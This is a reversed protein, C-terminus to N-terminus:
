SLDDELLQIAVFMAKLGAHVSLAPGAECVFVNENGVIEKFTKEFKEAIINNQVHGIGVRYTKRSPLNKLLFKLFKEHKNKRGFTKGGLKVGEQHLTLIPNMVLLNAITKVFPPIRGGKVVNELTELGIYVKTNAIAQKTVQMVDEISKGAQIAEATRWAILGQGVSGNNCDIVKVPFDRLSNTATVASQYTGSAAAPIHISIASKYHSALFQYQRRFDGPAPQSTQPHIPNRQAEKWFEATTMTMKDVYHKDGFNLRVPVMHIDLEELMEEPLDCGSDVVLAISSHEKQADKQQRFMDDAKEGSVLGFQECIEMITKPEDTHIHMKAKNKTGALVISGGHNMLREKLQIRNINKGTIICETCYRFKEDINLEVRDSSDIIEIKDVDTVSGNDIFEQIGEILDVFGQGGADVVGAKALVDLKEPTKELSAQAKILAQKLLQSYDTIYRSKERVENVWDSIVTLITGERPETLAEYAYEKAVQLSKGFNQSSLQPKNQTGESFGVFFQALIAGSNGRAGDLASDAIAASMHSINSQIKKSIGDEIAALTYAMNTGTDGDPVPFVNIKNLYDQRSIVKKLGVTLSKYLRIGDIYDIAM